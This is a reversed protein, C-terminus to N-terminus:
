HRPRRGSRRRGGRFARVAGTLAELKDMVKEDGPWHEQLIHRPTDRMVSNLVILALTLDDLPGFPLIFDLNIDVPALIYVALGWLKLRNVLSVRGDQALRLSLVFVDPILFLIQRLTEYGPGTHRDIWGDIASRLRDYYRDVAEDHGPLRERSGLGRRPPATRGLSSEEPLVTDGAM